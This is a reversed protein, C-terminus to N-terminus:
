EKPKKPQDKKPEPKKVCALQPSLEHGAGCAAQARQLERQFEAVAADIEKQLVAQAESLGAIRLQLTGIARKADDPVQPPGAKLEAPAVKTEAMMPVAPKEQAVLGGSLALACALVLLGHRM